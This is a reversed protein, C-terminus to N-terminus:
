EVINKYRKIDRELKSSIINCRKARKNDLKNRIDRIQNLDARCEDCQRKKDIQKIEMGCISCNIMKDKVKKNDLNFKTIM